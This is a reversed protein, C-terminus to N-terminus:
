NTLNRETANKAALRLPASTCAKNAARHWIHWLSLVLVPPRESEVM